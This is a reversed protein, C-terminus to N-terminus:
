LDRMRDQLITLGQAANLTHAAKVMKGEHVERAKVRIAYALKRLQDSPSSGNVQLPPLAVPEEAVKLVAYLDDDTLAEWKPDRLVNAVKRLLDGEPPSAEPTREVQAVKTAYTQDLKAEEIRRLTDLLRTTM